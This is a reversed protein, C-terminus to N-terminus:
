RTPLHLSAGGSGPEPPVARLIAEFSERRLPVKFGHEASYAKRQEDIAATVYHTVIALRDREALLSRTWEENYSM